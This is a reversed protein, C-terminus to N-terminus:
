KTKFTNVIKYFLNKYIPWYDKTTNFGLTWIDNQKGNILVLLTQFNVGSQSAEFEIFYADQGNINDQEERTFVIDLFTQVMIEKVLGLYEKSTRSDLPEQTISFYTQFNIKKAEEDKIEEKSNVVKMLIQSPLETEEWREPVSILFNEKEVENLPYEKTEPPQEKQGLSGEQIQNKIIYFGAGTGAALILLIILIIIIKKEM